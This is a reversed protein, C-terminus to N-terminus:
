SAALGAKLNTVEVEVAAIRTGHETLLDMHRDLIQATHDLNRDIRSLTDTVAREKLKDIYSYLGGFIAIVACVASGVAAVTVWNM